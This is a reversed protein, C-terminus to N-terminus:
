PLQVKIPGRWGGVVRQCRTCCSVHLTEHTPEIDLLSFWRWDHAGILCLFLSM